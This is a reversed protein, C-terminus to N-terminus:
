KNIFERRKSRSGPVWIYGKYAVKKDTTKLFVGCKNMLHGRRIILGRCNNMLCALRIEIDYIQCIM